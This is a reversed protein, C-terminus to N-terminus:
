RRRHTLTERRLQDNDAYYARMTPGDFPRDAYAFDCAPCHAYTQSVVTDFVRVYTSVAGPLQEGPAGCIPCSELASQGPADPDCLAHALASM